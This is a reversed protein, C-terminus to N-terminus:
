ATVSRGAGKISINRVLEVTILTNPATYEACARGVPLPGYDRM